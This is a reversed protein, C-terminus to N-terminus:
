LEFQCHISKFLLNSTFFLAVFYSVMGWNPGWSNKILWYDKGSETGYGVVIVAHNVNNANCGRSSYVGSRYQAFNWESADIGIAVPGAQAVAQALGREDGYAINRWGSIKM